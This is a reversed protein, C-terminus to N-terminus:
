GGSVALAAKVLLTGSWLLATYNGPKLAVPSSYSWRGNTIPITAAVVGKGSSDEILIKASSLNGGTGSLTPYPSSATFAPRDFALTIHTVTKVPVGENVIPTSTGSSGGPLPFSGHDLGAPVTSSASAAGPATTTAAPVGGPAGGGAILFYGGIIVVLVVAIGIGALLKQNM